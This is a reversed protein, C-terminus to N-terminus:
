DIYLALAALEKAIKALSDLNAYENISHWHDGEVGMSDLCPIGCQTVYAADSGGLCIRAKREPLGVMRNIENLRDLLAFNKESRVMPPRYSIERTECSCGEIYSENAVENFFNKIYALEEMTAFRVDVIFSCEEPVTNAVSGGKIIGCNCTIGEENKMKDIKLIKSAAEAIANAGRTACLASHAAEGHVLFECRFIGKRILTSTGSISPETNIFAISDKAKECMYNITAKKSLSSGVEEDSQLLLQIPRKDYGCLRLADMAMFSAVIGGKCDMVGPGRLKDGDIKVAPEGFFGVKHVTDMHGSFSIPKGKANPNSTICVVDGAVDQPFIEVQWGRERALDSFYKGVADVGAKYNTPSEISCSEIFIKIYEANLEDIKAFLNKHDM